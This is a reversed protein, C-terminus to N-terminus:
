VVNGGIWDCLRAFLPTTRGVGGDYDFYAGTFECYMGTRSLRALYGAFEAPAIHLTGCANQSFREWYESAHQLDNQEAMRPENTEFKHLLVLVRFERLSLQELSQLLEEYEDLDGANAFGNLLKGFLAIKERRRSTLAAQTTQYFCHLFDDSHLLEESLQGAALEDVFYEFRERRIRDYRAQLLTDAIGGYQLFQVLARVFPREAYKTILYDFMVDPMM